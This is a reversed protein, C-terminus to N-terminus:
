FVKGTGDMSNYTYIEFDATSEGYNEAPSELILKEGLDFEQLLQSTKDKDPFLYIAFEAIDTLMEVYSKLENRMEDDSKTNDVYISVVGSSIGSKPAVYSCEYLLYFDADESLAFEFM